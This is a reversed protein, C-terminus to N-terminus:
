PKGLADPVVDALIFLFRELLRCLVDKGERVPLDVRQNRLSLERLHAGIVLDLFYRLSANAAMWSVM